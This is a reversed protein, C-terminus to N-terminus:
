PPNGLGVSKYGQLPFIFLRTVLFAQMIFIGIIFGPIAMGTYSFIRISADLSSNRHAAASKGFKIGILAAFFMSLFMIELTRPLHQMIIDWVKSYPVVAISFGWDSRLLDSMYVLFQIFLPKDLGMRAKEANYMEETFMKPMRAFVPDGPVTRNLFFVIIIVGFLIPISILIRRIIYKLLNM